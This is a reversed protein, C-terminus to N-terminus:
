PEGLAALVHKRRAELERADEAEQRRERRLLKMDLVSEIAKSIIDQLVDPEVAELEYVARGHKAIYGSARSSTEKAQLMPPLDLETIQQSTLAVKSATIPVGFEDRLSATLRDAISEGEPDHDSAILLMMRSKGSRRFQEAMEHVATISPYGRGVCVPVHYPMTARQGIAQVTMKELFLLIHAPQSQQLNRRYGALFSDLEKRVFPAPSDWVNWVTRPRTEDEIAAFPVTGNLRACVLLRSLDKYSATDNVYKSQPKKAHRLVHVGLLRYHVQRLTLPWISRYREIIEVAADLFPQKAASIEARKRAAAPTLICLGAEAVHIQIKQSEAKRHKILRAYADKKSTLAVQERIEEQPSKKRQENYSVLYEAFKPDTSAIPLVEVFVWEIQALQAAVRRRHGSVIVDDTTIAMAGFWGLERMRDALALTAPDKPDVIKYLHDNLKAPKLLALPYRVFPTPSTESATKKTRTESTPRTKSAAKRPSSAAKKPNAAKKPSNTKKPSGKSKTKKPHIM